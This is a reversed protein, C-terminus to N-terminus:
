SHIEGDPSCGVYIGGPKDDGGVWGAVWGQPLDFTHTFKRMDFPVRYRDCLKALAVIQADTV